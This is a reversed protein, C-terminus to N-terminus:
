LSVSECEYVCLSLNMNVCLSVSVSVCVSECVCESVSLNVFVCECVSQFSVPFECVNVNLSWMSEQACVSVCM